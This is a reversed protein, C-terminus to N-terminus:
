AKKKAARKKGRTRHSAKKKSRVAAKPAPAQVAGVSALASANVSAKAADPEYGAEILADRAKARQVLAQRHM